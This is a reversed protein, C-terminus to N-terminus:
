KMFVWRWHAWNIVRRFNRGKIPGIKAEPNYKRVVVAVKEWFEALLSEVLNVIRDSQELQGSIEASSAVFIGSDCVQPRVNNFYVRLGDGDASVAELEERFQDRSEAFVQDPSYLIELIARHPYWSSRTDRYRGYGSGPQCLIHGCCTYETDLVFPLHWIAPVIERIPEELYGVLGEYQRILEAEMFYVFFASM